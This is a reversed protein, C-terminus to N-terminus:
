GVIKRVPGRLLKSIHRLAQEGAAALEEAQRRRTDALARALDHLHDEHLHALGRPARVGLQKELAKLGSEAM